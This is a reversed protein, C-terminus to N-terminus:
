TATVTQTFLRKVPGALPDGEARNVARTRSERLDGFQHTHIHTLPRFVWWGAREGCGHHGARSFLAASWSRTRGVSAFNPSTASGSARTTSQTPSAPGSEEIADAAFKLLDEGAFSDDRYLEALKDVILEPDDASALGSLAVLLAEVRTTETADKEPAMARAYIPPGLAAGM